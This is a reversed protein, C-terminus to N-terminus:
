LMKFLPRFSYPHTMLALGHVCVGEIVSLLTQFVGEAHLSVESLLRTESLYSHLVHVSQRDIFGAAGAM